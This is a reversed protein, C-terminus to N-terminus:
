LVNTITGKLSKRKLKTIDYKLIRKHVSLGLMLDAGARQICVRTAVIALEISINCNCNLRISFLSSLWKESDLLDPLWIESYM